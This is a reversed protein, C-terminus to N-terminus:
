HSGGEGAHGQEGNCKGEGMRDANQGYVRCESPSASDQKLLTTKTSSAHPFMVPVDCARLTPVLLFVAVSCVDHDQPLATDVHRCLFM